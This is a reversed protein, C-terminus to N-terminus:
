MVRVRASKTRQWRVYIDRTGRGPTTASCGKGIQVNHGMYKRHNCWCVGRSCEQVAAAGGFWWRVVTAACRFSHCLMASYVTSPVAAHNSGDACANGQIYVTNALVRCRRVVRRVCRQICWCSCRRLVEPSSINLDACGVASGILHM